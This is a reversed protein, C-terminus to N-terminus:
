KSKFRESIERELDMKQPIIRGEDFRVFLLEGSIESNIEALLCGVFDDHLLRECSNSSLLKVLDIYKKQNLSDSQWQKLYFYRSVYLWYGTALMALKLNSLEAKTRIVECTNDPCYEIWSFGNLVEVSAKGALPSKNLFDLVHAAKKGDPFASLSLSQVVFVLYLIKKVTM